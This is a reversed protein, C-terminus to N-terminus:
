SKPSTGSCWFGNLIDLLFKKTSQPLNLLMSYLIEDEGPSTPSSLSIAYDLEEM